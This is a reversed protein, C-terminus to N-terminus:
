ESGHCGCSPGCCAGASKEDARDPGVLKDLKATVYRAHHELHWTAYSLVTKVTQEGREPHMLRRGLQETSLTMLWDGTWQRLTHILAVGGAVVSMVRRHAAEPSDPGRNQLKTGYVDNDIFANEDWMSVLPNDEGVGRRMRHTFVIDADVLHGILVRLPWRGVDAEPLFATDIQAETLNFLRRDFNEVGRRYRLILEQSPMAVFETVPAMAPMVSVGPAKCSTSDFVTEMSAERPSGPTHRRRKGAHYHHM